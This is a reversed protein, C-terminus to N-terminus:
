RNRTGGHAARTRPGETIRRTRPPQSLHPDIMERSNRQVKELERSASNPCAGREHLDGMWRGKGSLRIQAGNMAAKDRHTPRATEGDM